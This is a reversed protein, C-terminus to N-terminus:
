KYFIMVSCNNRRYTYLPLANTKSKKKTKTKLPISLLKTCQAFNPTNQCKVYYNSKPPLPAKKKYEFRSKIHMSCLNCMLMYYYYYTTIITSYYCLWTKGFIAWFFLPLCLVLCFFCCYFFWTSSDAIKEYSSLSQNKRLRLLIIIKQYYPFFHKKNKKIKLEIIGLNQFKRGKKKATVSQNWTNKEEIKM